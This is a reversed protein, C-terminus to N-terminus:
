PKYKAYASVQINLNTKENIECAKVSFHRCHFQDVSDQLDEKKNLILYAHIMEHQQFCFNFDETKDFAILIHM